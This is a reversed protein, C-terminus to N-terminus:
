RNIGNEENVNLENVTQAKQNKVNMLMSHIISQNLTLRSVYFTILFYRYDTKGNKQPFTEIKKKIKRKKMEIKVFELTTHTHERNMM